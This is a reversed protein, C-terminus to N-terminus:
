AARSEQDTNWTPFLLVAPHVRLARALTKAREAGLNIQGREIGSITSQSMGAKKALVSQSFGNLERALRVSRGPTLAGRKRSPSVGGATAERVKRGITM